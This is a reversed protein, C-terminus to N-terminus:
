LCRWFSSRFFGHYPLRFPSIRCRQFQDVISGSVLAVTSVAKLCFRTLSFGAGKSQVLRSPWPACARNTVILAVKHVVKCFLAGNVSSRSHPGLALIVTIVRNARGGPGTSDTSRTSSSTTAAAALPSTSEGCFWGALMGLHFGCCSRNRCLIAATSFCPKFVASTTASRAFLPQRCSIGLCQTVLACSGDLPM